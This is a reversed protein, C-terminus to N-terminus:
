YRIDPQAIAQEIMDVNYREVDNLASKDGLQAGAYSYIEELGRQLVARTLSVDYETLRESRSLPFIRDYQMIYEERAVIKRVNEAELNSLPSRMADFDTPSYKRVISLYWPKSYFWKNLLPDRFMRGHRAYVENRAIRLEALSLSSLDADTIARSSSFDLIYDKDWYADAFIQNIVPVPVYERTTEGIYGADEKARFMMNQLMDLSLTLNSRYQVVYQERRMNYVDFYTNQLEQELNGDNASYYAGGTLYALNRLAQENLDSGVGVIYLPIGTAQALQVVDDYTYSSANEEGDTFAIVCKAGSEANTKLLASYLADYLATAGDPYQEYLSSLLVNFSDTFSHPVYVYSDFFTLEVHSNGLSDLYQLFSSAASQAQAMKNNDSMSGSKDIVLNVSMNETSLIQRLEEIDAVTLNGSVDIEYIEFSEKTLAEIVNSEMDLINVYFRVIPFDSSDIQVIDLQVPKDQAIDIPSQTSAPEEPINPTQPQPQSDSQPHPDSQMNSDTQQQPASIEALMKEIESNGPLRDIGRELIRIARDTRGSKIYAEAAGIYGLPNRSQMGIVELFYTLAKEYDQELLSIEGLELLETVTMTHEPRNFYAFLIACAIAALALSALVAILTKKKKPKSRIQTDSAPVSVNPASYATNVPEKSPTFVTENLTFDQVIGNGVGYSSHRNQTAAGLIVTEEGTNTKYIETGNSEIPNSQVVSGVAGSGETSNLIAELDRRMLMPSSYRDNPSYACAKLVVKALREDANIPKPMISGGIRKMVSAERDNYTIPEPYPPLFPTRNENLLRYMVIGLSYIDVSSGYAEGRYIEPAMYVYTGKKSLGSTTKEITRAIGFDGLKFENNQSVFMNEPKIDRHIINHMQCLELAKCMDIGLKIVDNNSLKAARIHDTLPTLLEMRILIDWGIGDKHKVVVHDEYSVINSNGKLKSMLAFESVIDEVIQRFYTTVSAEDMSDAMVSKIESQSQPITIAKLAAEYITGYDYREILFVKGFSGEGLSEKIYWSGFIPEYEQYREISM